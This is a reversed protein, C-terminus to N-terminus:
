NRSFHFTDFEYGVNVYFLANGKERIATSVRIPGFFTKVGLESYLAWTVDDQTWDDVSAYNLGQLAFTNFVNRHFKARFALEYIRFIPASIEYKEYGRFAHSGGFYFPDVAMDEGKSFYSGYDLALKMSLFDFLPSWLEMKGEIRSYIIDSIEKQRSFNSKMSIRAGNMPFYFDDLSEHYIKLGFGSILNNKDLPATASVDRYLRNRYSYVFAEAIAVKNAFVGVGGNLGYELAMVSGIKINDRYIYIRDENLYTFLRFYSGWFDGFNKVYDLVLETKGGLNIAARLSSNKLIENDMTFLLGAVSSRETTYSANFALHRREKEKVYIHLHWSGEEPILVPYITYFLKSNWATLCKEVIEPVGYQDGIVIGMYDKIKAGSVYKNGHCVIKSVRFKGLTIPPIQVERNAAGIGCSDRFAILKDLNLRAYVEGADIIAKLNKFDTASFEALLPELLFDCDDLHEALNRTIGINITQDIVDVFSKINDAGRLTSNVKLGIVVDAGMSKVVSVPVNQAIGGDIYKKGDFEFPEIISPISMSARVAQMLSGKDFIVPIGSILDTAVCAFPIPLDSFDRYQSADAYLEFLKLNISNGIFVSTPIVHDWQEDFSLNINGYPAWRKQGIYLDKRQYSDDFLERWDLQLALEEIESASYGMSYLAGIIAGISTGAVYDPKFGTEELVKLIGIHAYGRAGGGSLAYGLKAASLSVFLFFSLSM